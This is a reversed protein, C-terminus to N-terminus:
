SCKVVNISCFISLSELWQKSEKAILCSDLSRLYGIGPFLSGLNCTLYFLRFRENKLYRIWLRLFITDLFLYKMLNFITPRSELEFNPFLHSENSPILLRSQLMQCEKQENEYLGTYKLWIYSAESTMLQLLLFYFLSLFGSKICKIELVNHLRRWCM